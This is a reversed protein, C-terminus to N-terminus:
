ISRASSSSFSKTAENEVSEWDNQRRCARSGWGVTFGLSCKKGANGSSGGNCLGADAHPGSTCTTWNGASSGTSCTSAWSGALCTDTAQSGYGTGAGCVRSTGSSCTGGHAYDYRRDLRHLRPKEYKKDSM